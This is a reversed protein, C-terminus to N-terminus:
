RAAAAVMDRYTKLLAFKTDAEASQGPQFYFGEFADMIAQLRQLSEPIPQNATLTQEQADIDQRIAMLLASQYYRMREVDGAKWAKQLQQLDAAVRSEAIKKANPAAEERQSGAAASQQATVANHALLLVSLLLLYKM